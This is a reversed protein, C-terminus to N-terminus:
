FPLGFRLYIRMDEGRYLAASAALMRGFVESAFWVGAGVARHWGGPSRGDVFVRGADVGALLGWVGRTLLVARGLQPRAELGAYVAADGHFRGTPFGRLTASGGLAPADIAPVRGSAAVGGLRAALAGGGLPAYLRLEADAVAYAAELDAHTPFAAGRVRLWWGRRAHAAHDRRDLSLDAAWGWRWLARGRYPDLAPLPAAADAEPRTWRLLPGTSWALGDREAGIRAELELREDRVLVLRRARDPTDNGYGYFRTYALGTYRAALRMLAPSNARRFTGEYGLAVRGSRLGVAAGLRQEWAWPHQRFGYRRWIRWGGLVPGTDRGYDLWPSLSRSRGWDRGADGTIDVGGTDAPARYPRTDVWTRPAPEFRNTGEADYFATRTAVGRVWSRDRYRDDGGDAAARVLPSRRARGAVAVDDDGALLTLRVERTEHPLFVREWRTITDGEELSRVRVWLGRDTRVVDALEREQTGRLEVEAALQRYFARAARPLDDRRARLREVLWDGRLRRYPEPLRAVAARLVDDRLAARVEAVVSDWVAWPLGVLFRRDIRESNITMAEIPGIRRGFRVARPFVARGVTMIAGDFNSFAYDRDRPIPTWIQLKGRDSGPLRAWRWNDTNRDWDGVVLDFIRIKLLTRADVQEKPDEDLREFLRDTSVVNTAGAFGPTGDTPEEPREEITGLLNAFTARFPGLRPHDPLFVLRPPAHLIGVAEMLASTVLAAAPFIASTQDRVLREIPTNRLDEDRLARAPDKDVSRFMYTRGDSGRFRLVKSQLGGGQEVPTLGGAFRDVDLVPVRIPTTWLDRYGAGLVTRKWGSAAYQPGAVVTM